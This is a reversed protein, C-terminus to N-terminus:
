PCKGLITYTARITCMIPCFDQPICVRSPRLWQSKPLPHLDGLMRVVSTQIKSKLGEPYLGMVCKPLQNLLVRKM